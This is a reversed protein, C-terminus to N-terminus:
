AAESDENVYVGDLRAALPTVNWTDAEAGARLLGWQLMDPLVTQLVKDAPATRLDKKWHRAYRDHVESMALGLQRENIAYFEDGLPTLAGDSRLRRIAACLLIVAHSETGDTPIPPRVIDSRGTGRLLRAYSPTFELEWGTHDFLDLAIQRRTESDGALVEFAERDEYRFLAPGLLLQRYIRMYPGPSVSEGGPVEEMAGEALLELTDSELSVNLSWAAAGWECLGDRKGVEDQWEDVSGDRVRLVGDDEMAHVVRALRRRESIKLWDFGGSGTRGSQARVADALQSITFRRGATNEGFWLVWVYLEYDRRDSAWDMGHAPELRAAPKVLRAFEPHEVLRWGVRESFWGGLKRYQRRIMQHLDNQAAAAVIPTDILAAACTRFDELRADIM